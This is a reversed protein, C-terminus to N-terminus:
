ENKMAEVTLAYREPNRVIHPKGRLKGYMILRATAIYRRAVIETQVDASTRCQFRGMLAERAPHVNNKTKRCLKLLHLEEADKKVLTKTEHIKKRVAPDIAPRGPVETAQSLSTRRGYPM